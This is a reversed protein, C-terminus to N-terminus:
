LPAGALFRQVMALGRLPQYMPVEHGAQKVTAFTFRVGSPPAYETVYGAVQNDVFWPRWGEKVPFNMGETWQQDQLYPICEDQDGNYVLVSINQLLGPYIQAPEDCPIRTYHLTAGGACEAWPGLAAVGAGMHLAAVVEPSNMWATLADDAASCPDFSLAAPAPAAGRAGESLLLARRQASGAAGCTVEINYGNLPGMEAGMQSLAAECAASRPSTWNVCAADIARKLPASFLGHNYAHQMRGFTLNGEYENGTKLAGNGVLIGKLRAILPAHPSALLAQALWPIYVGAYSEGSLWLPTTPKAFAPFASFFDVLAGLSDAAASTDNATYPPQQGEIFSFGVGPPTEIFLVNARVNWRGPNVSLSGDANM